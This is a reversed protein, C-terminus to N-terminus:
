FPMPEAVIPRLAALRRARANSRYNDAFEVAIASEATRLHESGKRKHGKQGLDFRFIREHYDRVSQCDIGLILGVEYREPEFADGCPCVPLGHRELAAMTSYTYNGCSCELRHLGSRKFPKSKGQM